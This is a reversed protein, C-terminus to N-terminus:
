NTAALVPQASEFLRPFTRGTEAITRLLLDIKRGTRVLGFASGIAKADIALWNLDTRERRWYAFIGHVVTNIRIKQEENIELLEGNEFFEATIRELIFVELESPSM